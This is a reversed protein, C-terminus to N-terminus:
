ADGYWTTFDDVGARDSRFENIPSTRNAYGFSIGCLIDRDASIQFYDRVFGSYSAIAAQPIAAVGAAEAALLFMAVFGGCDIAGYPGLAKDTSIICVHPAGFFRFNELRQRNRAEKDERAIAMSDYLKAGVVRRREDYRGVYRSPFPIDPTTEAATAAHAYLANRFAETADGRTVIVDWPQCNCWSATRSATRLIDRIVEKPVPSSLFSRCSFRSRLLAEVKAVDMRAM